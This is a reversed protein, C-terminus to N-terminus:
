WYVLLADQRRLGAMLRDGSTIASLSPTSGLYATKSHLIGVRFRSGFDFILPVLLRRSLHSKRAKTVRESSEDRTEM